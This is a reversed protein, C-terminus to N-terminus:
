NFNLLPDTSLFYHHHHYYYCSSSFFFSLMEMNWFFTLYICIMLCHANVNGFQKSLNPESNLIGSHPMTRQNERSLYHMQHASKGFTANEQSSVQSSRISPLSEIKISAASSRQGGGSQIKRDSFNLSTSIGATDKLQFSKGALDGSFNTAALNFGTNEYSTSVPTVKVNPDNSSIFKRSSMLESSSSQLGTLGFKELSEKVMEVSPHLGKRNSLSGADAPIEGVYSVASSGLGALKQSGTKSLDRVVHNPGQLLSARTSSHEFHTGEGGSLQMQKSDRGQYLKQFPVKQKGDAESSQINVQFEVEEKNEVHCIQNGVHRTFLSENADPPKMDTKIPFESSGKRDIEKKNLDQSQLTPSVQVLQEKGMGSFPKSPQLEVPEVASANDEEASVVDPQVTSDNVSHFFLYNEFM